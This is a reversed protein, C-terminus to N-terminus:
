KISVSEISRWLSKATTDWSFQQRQKRAKEILKEKLRKEKAIKRLADAISDISYPNVYLAADGGVEPMSSTNSTIVPVECHMAELIPIGFGEFLSTYIMAESSAITERLHNESMRGTFIIEKQFDSAYYAQRVDATMYKLDGIVVLKIDSSESQRYASFANIVRALNKRPHVLGLFVFFPAGGAVSVQTQTKTIANVPKFGESCGNYVVDIKETSVAFRTVIDQKTFESVTAIREARKVFRPFFYHYYRRAFGDVWQPNHFFNLDHIVPLQPIKSRLSLWGDPSFFLDPQHKRLVLPVGYDFFLYWLLPHRAQPSAVVPIINNSYIFEDSYRRDFIFVFQHEPHAQTIRKLSEHTFRGLGELKDPLLLRTNVAIKM